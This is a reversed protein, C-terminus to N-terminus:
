TTMGDALVLCRTHMEDHVHSASFPVFGGVIESDLNPTINSTAAGARFKAVPAEAARAVPLLGLFVPAALLVLTRRSM